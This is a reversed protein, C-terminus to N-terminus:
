GARRSARSDRSVDRRDNGQDGREDYEAEEDVNRFGLENHEGREGDEVDNEHPRPQPDDM